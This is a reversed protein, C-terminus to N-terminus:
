LYLPKIENIKPEKKQSMLDWNSVLCLDGYQTIIFNVKKRIGTKIEMIQDIDPLRSIAIHYDIGRITDGYDLKNLIEEFEQLSNVIYFVM